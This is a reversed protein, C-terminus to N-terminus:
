RGVFSCLPLIFKHHKQAKRFQCFWRTLHYTLLQDGSRGNQGIDVSLIPAETKGSEQNTVLSQDQEQEYRDTLGWTDQRTKDEGSARETM